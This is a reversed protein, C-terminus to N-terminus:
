SRKPLWSILSLPKHRISYPQKCHLSWDGSCRSFSGCSGAPVGSRNQPEETSGTCCSTNSTGLNRPTQTTGQKAVDSVKFNLAASDDRSACTAPFCTVPVELAWCVLLLSQWMLCPSKVSAPTSCKATLLSIVIDM